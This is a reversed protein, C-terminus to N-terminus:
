EKLSGLMIGRIFYRQAAPYIALIPVTSVIIACNKIVEELLFQGDASSMGDTYGM